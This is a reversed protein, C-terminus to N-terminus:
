SAGVADRRSAVPMVIGHYGEPISFWKVRDMIGYGPIALQISERLPDVASRYEAMM